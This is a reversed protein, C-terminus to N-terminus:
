KSQGSRFVNPKTKGDCAEVHNDGRSERIWDFCVRIAASNFRLAFWSTANRRCESTRSHQCQPSKSAAGERSEGAAGEGAPGPMARKVRRMPWLRLATAAALACRLKPAAPSVKSKTSGALSKKVAAWFQRASTRRARTPQLWGVPASWGERDIELVVTLARRRALVVPQAVADVQLGEYSLGRM